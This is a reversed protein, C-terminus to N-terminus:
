KAIIIPGTAMEESDDRPDDYGLKDQQTSYLPSKAM